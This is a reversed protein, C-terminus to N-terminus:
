GKPGGLRRERDISLARALVRESNRADRHLFLADLRDSYGSDREFSRDIVAIAAAVLEGLSRAVPGPAQTSYDFIGHKYHQARFREEDRHDFVIPKGLYAFDFFVSSYDTILASGRAFLDRYRVSGPEHIIVRESALTRYHDAYASMAPHLVMEIRTDSRALSEQLRPDTLFQRQQIYYEDSEFGDQALSTGSAQRAGALWSRWTPMYLLVPSGMSHRDRLLDFRPFGTELLRNPALGFDPRSGYEVEHRAGVVVGGHGRRFRSFVSDISNMTIGHQLWIFTLDTADAYHTKPAGHFPNNYVDGVHSSFLIRANLYLRRHRRSGPRVVRRTRKLERYSPAEPDLVFWTKRRLDPRDSHIFRFLAEGNDDGFRPRDTILLIDKESRVILRELVISGAQRIRRVSAISYRWRTPTRKSVILTRGRTLRVSGNNNFRTPWEISNVFPSQPGQVVNLSRAARGTNRNLIALSWARKTNTIPIRFRRYSSRRAVYKGHKDTLGACSRVSETAHMIQRRPGLLVLDIDPSYELFTAEIDVADSTVSVSALTVEIESIRAVPEGDFLLRGRGPETTAVWPEAWMGALSCLAYRAALRTAWRSQALYRHPVRDLLGGLLRRRVLAQEDDGWLDDSFQRLAELILWVTVSSVVPRLTGTEPISNRLVPIVSDILRIRAANSHAPITLRSRVGDPTTVMGTLVGMRDGSRELAQLMVGWFGPGILEVLSRDQSIVARRLFACVGVATFSDPTDILSLVTQGDPSIGQKAIDYRAYFPNRGASRPYAAVVSLDARLSGFRALRDAAGPEFRTGAEVVCIWDGHISDARSTEYNSDNEDIHLIRVSEGREAAFDEAYRDVELSGDIGHEGLFLTLDFSPGVTDENLSDLTMALRDSDAGCRIIISLAAVRDTQLSHQGDVDADLYELLQLARETARGDRQYFFSGVATEHAPSPGHVSRALAAITEETTRAIPGLDHAEFNFSAPLSTLSEMDLSDRDFQYYVVPTDRYAADFALPSYDTLCLTCHIVAATKSPEDLIREVWQPTDLASLAAEYGTPVSIQVRFAYRDRVKAFELSNLFEQWQALDDPLNSRDDLDPDGPSGWDRRGGLAILLTPSDGEQRVHPERVLLDQYPLGIAFISADDVSYASDRGVLRDLEYRSSIAVTDFNAQNLLRYDPLVPVNEPLYICHWTKKPRREDFRLKQRWRPDATVFITCRAMLHQHRTSGRAVVHRQYTSDHLVPAHDYDAVLSVEIGPRHQVIYDYLLTANRSGIEPYDIVWVPARVSPFDAPDPANLVPELQVPQNQNYKLTAHRPASTECDSPRELKEMLSRELFAHGQHAFTWSPTKSTLRVRETPAAEVRVLHEYCWIQGLYEVARTTRRWVPQKQQSTTVDYRTHPTGSYFTLLQSRRGPDYAGRIVSSKHLQAIAALWANRIEFSIRVNVFENICQKGIRYLNDRLAEAISARQRSALRYVPSQPRANGRFLHAVAYLLSNGLWQPCNPGARDLIAPHSRCITAEYRRYDERAKGIISSGDGRKLYRYEASPVVAYRAGNEILYRLNFDADSGTRLQEDFTLGSSAILKRSWVATGGSFHIWNPERALDVVRTRGEDFRFDLPHPLSAGDEAVTCLRSAFMTVDPQQEIASLIEAIYEGDLIDDPDPSTIWTGRALAFGTNRASAVGGNPKEIVRVPYTSTAMWDLVVEGSNEPCGDIVFILECDQKDSTQADLSALFDPLYRRVAYCASVISIKPTHNKWFADDRNSKISYLSEPSM